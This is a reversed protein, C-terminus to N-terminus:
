KPNWQINPLRRPVMRRFHWAPYGLTLLLHVEKGEPMDLIEYQLYSFEELLLQISGIHCTGLGMQEAALTINYAAYTAEERACVSDKDCFGALVVPANFFFRRKKQVGEEIIRDIEEVSLGELFKSADRGKETSRRVEDLASQLLGTIKQEDDLVIWDLFQRNEATPIWRSCSILDQILRHPVPRDRYRRFSRRARFAALLMDLFPLQQPDILPCEQLPIKEQNISDTSCVAICHGCLRCKEPHIVHPGDDKMAFVDRAYCIDVCAGCQICSDRNITIM